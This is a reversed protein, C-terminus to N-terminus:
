QSETGCVNGQHYPIRQPDKESKDTQILNEAIDNVFEYAKDVDGKLYFMYPIVLPNWRHGHMPSRLNLVLVNYHKQKLYAATRNYIEAKPDSIIMSEGTSALIRVLPMAILRSKKSGTPGIVLTHTDTHDVCITNSKGSWALPVGVQGSDWVKINQTAKIPEQREISYQAFTNMLTGIPAFYKGYKESISKEYIVSM